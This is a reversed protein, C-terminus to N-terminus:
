KTIEGEIKKLGDEIIATHIYYSLSLINIPDNPFYKKMDERFEEVIKLKSKKPDPMPSAYSFPVGKRKLIDGVLMTSDIGIFKTGYHGLELFKNILKVTPMSTALCIVIKPDAKILKKAPRDIDMTFRNYSAIAKPEIGAKKLEEITMNKNSIGFSGDDHFIAIKKLRLTKTAHKVLAKIQPEILGLGNVLHSLNPQRLQDAGGWPFFVAVDKKETMPLIKFVSRTGMNGFFMDVNKEKMFFVNEETKDPEGGDDMSVLRLNRGKIGGQKNIRNFRANISNQIFEGYLQLSGQSLFASQGFIIDSKKKNEGTVTLTQFFITFVLILFKFKKV